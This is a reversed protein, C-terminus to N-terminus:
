IIEKIKESFEYLTKYDSENNVAFIIDVDIGKRDVGFMNVVYLGNEILSKVISQSQQTGCMISIKCNDSMHKKLNKFAECVTNTLSNAFPVETMIGDFKLDQLDIKSADAIHHTAGYNILGSALEESIDITHIEVTPFAQRVQYLIGGAGAFPDLVVKSSENCALNCLMRCDEVPLARRGFEKGNGRYGKIKRVVEDGCKIYFERMDPAQKRNEAEDQEFFEVISFKRKKWSLLPNYKLFLMNEKNSDGFELMYFKNCYGACKMLSIINKKNDDDYDICISFVGKVESLPCNKIFISNYREFLIMMEFVALKKCKSRSNRLECIIIRKNSILNDINNKDVLIADFKIKRGEHM